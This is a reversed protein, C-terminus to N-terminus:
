HLRAQRDKRFNRDAHDGEYELINEVFGIAPARKRGSNLCAGEERSRERSVQAGDRSLHDQHIWRQKTGAIDAAAERMRFYGLADRWVAARGQGAAGNGRTQFPKLDGFDPRSDAPYSM